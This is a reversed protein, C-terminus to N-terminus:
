KKPRANEKLDIVTHGELRRDFFNEVVPPTHFKSRFRKWEAVTAERNHNTDVDAAYARIREADEPRIEKAAIAGRIENSIPLVLTFGM